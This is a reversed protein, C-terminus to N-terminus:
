LRRMQDAAQRWSESFEDYKAMFEDQFDAHGEIKHKQDNEKVAAINLGLGGGLQMGPKQKPLSVEPMMVPAPAGGIIRAKEEDTLARYDFSSAVSSSM